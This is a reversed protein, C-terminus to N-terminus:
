CHCLSSHESGQFVLLYHITKSFYKLHIIYYFLKIRM